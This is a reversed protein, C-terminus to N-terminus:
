GRVYLRVFQFVLLKECLDFLFSPGFVAFDEFSSLCEICHNSIILFSEAYCLKEVSHFLASKNTLFIVKLM